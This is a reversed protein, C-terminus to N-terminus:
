EAVVAITVTETAMESYGAVYQKGQENLRAREVTIRGPEMRLERLTSLDPDLGLVTSAERIQSLTIRHADKSM